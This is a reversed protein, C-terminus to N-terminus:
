QNEKPTYAHAPCSALQGANGLQEENSDFPDSGKAAGHILQVRAPIARADAIQRINGDDPEGADVLVRYM